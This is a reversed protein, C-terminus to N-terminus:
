STSSLEVQNQIAKIQKESLVVDTIPKNGYLDHSGDHIYFLTNRGIQYQVDDFPLIVVNANTFRFNLVERIMPYDILAVGVNNIYTDYDEKVTKSADGSFKSSSFLKAINNLQFEMENYRGYETSPDYVDGTQELIYDLIKSGTPVHTANAYVYRVSQERSIGAIDPRPHGNKPRNGARISTLVSLDTDHDDSVATM